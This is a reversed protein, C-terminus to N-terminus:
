KGGLETEKKVKEILDKVAGQGGLGFALGGAIALMAVLGTFLTQLFVTAIGLQALAAIITFGLIAYKTAAGALDSFSLQAAKVVGSVVKSFFHAAIAGVLLIAASQAAVGVYGLVANLFSSVESLGLVSTAAIFAVIMIVWKVVSAILGTTDKKSEAKKIIEEVKVKEFLSQLGVARLVNDVAWELIAAVAWGVILIVAAGVLNPLYGIFRSIVDTLSDSVTTTFDNVTLAM